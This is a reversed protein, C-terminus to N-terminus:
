AVPTAKGNEIKFTMSDARQTTGSEDVVVVNGSANITRNKADYIVEDAQLSFLNYALFIPEKTKKEGDFAYIDDAHRRHAYRVYLQFPVGDNSPSPLFEEHSCFEKEADAWDRPITAHGSAAVVVIDCSPQVALIIDFDLTAPSTVRFLPRRYPRFGFIEATMIYDGVPLNAGYIGRDNTFVAKSLGKSRFTIKVRPIVAGTADTITGKVDFVQPQLLKAPSQPFSPLALVLIAFLSSFANRM